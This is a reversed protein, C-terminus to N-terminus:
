TAAKIGWPAGLLRWQAALPGWLLWIPTIKAGLADSRKILGKGAHVSPEGLQRRQAGLPGVAAVHPYDYCGLHRIKKGGCGRHHTRTKM